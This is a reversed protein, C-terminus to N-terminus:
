GIYHITLCGVKTMPPGALYDFYSVKLISPFSKNNFLTKGRIILHTVIISVGIVAGSVLAIGITTALAAAQYGSQELASRDTGFDVSKGLVAALEADVNTTNSNPAMQPFLQYLRFIAIVKILIGIIFQPRMRYDTLMEILM